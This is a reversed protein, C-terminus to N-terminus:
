YDLRQQKPAKLAKEVITETGLLNYHEQLQERLRFLKGSATDVLHGYTVVHITGSTSSKDPDVDGILAGVVYATINSNKHLVASKRIQRVYNEAQSVEDSTIEFGGKKLEIILVQDPKMMDCDDDKRETCVARISYNKLCVIDPRKRPNAIADLDYDEEKFLNRIVTTLTSNSIFMPSDFEAGFLWRANLVLPHLTHLEDTKNDNFVRNIAEIVLIRKDIENLIAVIDDVNWTDLINSLKDIECPSLRSLQNLLYEGKRAQEISIIARVAAKLFDPNITPHGETVAEIFTSIDRQGSTTLTELEDRTERIIELRLEDIQESLLTGLLSDIYKKLQAYVRRMKFSDIFGTWDPLVEEILDDTQVILTYRKAAKYRRDLFQYSSYVWSPRGVLRGCVWFAIGHQQSKLATRTSDVVTLSLKIHNDLLLDKQDFIGKHHLLDITKENIKVLFRPDYLFRASIINTMEEIDPLHRHVFTSIKTGHGFKPYSTNNSIYFPSTGSSVSIDYKNSLGDKWTEVVYSNSNFCLMGHRGIGNRGYAIRRYGEVDPPFTVEKGLHKQRDFNLTMWYKRFESDTMGIGDDEVSIEETESDPISIKVNYAGADWANAVFETLAIDPSSTVSHNNKFIYGDEFQVSPLTESLEM